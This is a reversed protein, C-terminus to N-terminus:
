SPAHARNRQSGPSSERQAHRGRMKGVLELIRHQRGHKGRRHHDQGHFVGREIGDPAVQIRALARDPGRDVDAMQRGRRDPVFHRGFGLHGPDVAAADREVHGRAVLDLLDTAAGMLPHHDVQAPEIFPQGAFTFGLTFDAVAKWNADFSM